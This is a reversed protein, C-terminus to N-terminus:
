RNPMPGMALRQAQIQSPSQQDFIIRDLMGAGAFEVQGDLTIVVHRGQLTVYSMRHDRAKSEEPTSLRMLGPSMSNGLEIFKQIDLCIIVIIDGRLIKQRLELSLFTAGLPRVSPRRFSDDLNYIRSECHQVKMWAQFGVFATAQDSYV